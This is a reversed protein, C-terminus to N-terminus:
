SFSVGSKQICDFLKRKARTLRMRISQPQIGLIDAIENDNWYLLYKQELLNRTDVDLNKWISRITEAQLKADIIADLPLVDSDILEFDVADLPVNTIYTNRKRLAYALNRITTVAYKVQQKPHLERFIDIKDIIKALAEYVTDEIDEPSSLHKTAEYFLLNEYQIFFNTMLNCDEPSEITSIIVPIM